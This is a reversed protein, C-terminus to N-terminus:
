IITQVILMFLLTLLSILLTVYVHSKLNKLLIHHIHRKDAIFPSQGNLIRLFFIRIIDVIPYLLISIVFLIKHLDYNEKIIYSNTLISITYISIVTGFMLSGSDGLFIKKNKRFNFYWLPITSCILLLSLSDFFFFNNGFFEFSIIFISVVALALGDIGDIFNISNIISVIIFVTILQAFISSLEFIGFVGHLNNIIFGQDVIIKATIIQFILKLKFDIDYLDDYLGILTMLSIPVFIKYDFIEIGNFYLFVSILFVCLFISLGGSNTATNSHSSRSNIQVVKNKTLFYKQTFILSIISLLISSIILTLEM